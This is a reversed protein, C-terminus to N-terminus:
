VQSFHDLGFTSDILVERCAHWKWLDVYYSCLLTGLYEITKRGDGTRRSTLLVFGERRKIHGTFPIDGDGIGIVVIGAVDKAGEM